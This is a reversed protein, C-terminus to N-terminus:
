FTEIWAVAKGNWERDLKTDAWDYLAAMWGNFEPRTVRKAKALMEFGAVLSLRKAEAGPWQRLPEVAKIRQAVVAALQRTTIEKNQAQEWEPLLSIKRQWQSM